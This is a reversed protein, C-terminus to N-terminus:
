EPAGAERLSGLLSAVDDSGDLSAHNAPNRHLLATVQEHAGAALLSGLLWAVGGPNQLSTHAAARGALVTTVQEPAGFARLADLLRAAAAPDEVSAHAAVRGALVAVQEDTGVERLMGLLRVLAKSVLPFEVSNTGVGMLWSSTTVAVPL